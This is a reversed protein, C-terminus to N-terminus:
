TAQPITIKFKNGSEDFGNDNQLNLVCVSIKENYMGKKKKEGERKCDKNTANNHGKLM